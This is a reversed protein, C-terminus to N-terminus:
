VSLCLFLYLSISLQRVSPYIVSMKIRLRSEEELRPREARPVNKGSRSSRDLRCSKFIFFKFNSSFHLLLIAGSFIKASWNTDIVLEVPFRLRVTHGTASILLQRVTEFLQGFPPVTTNLNLIRERKLM